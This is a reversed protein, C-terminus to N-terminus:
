GDSKLVVYISGSRGLDMPVIEILLGDYKFWSCNVLYRLFTPFIFNIQAYVASSYPDQRQPM